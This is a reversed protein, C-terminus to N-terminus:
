TVLILSPEAVFLVNLAAREQGPRRTNVSTLLPSATKLKAALLKPAAPTQMWLQQHQNM